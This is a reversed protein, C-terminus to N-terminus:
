DFLNTVQFEDSGAPLTVLLGDDALVWGDERIDAVGRTFIREVLKAPPPPTLHVMVLLGVGAENAIEAAETPTTHYSQIDETIKAIRPRGVEEAVASIQRVIHNAQAEHFLVDAGEAAAVLAPSPRADGSFVMSRGLYDFRYGYAPRVPDHNVVFATITLGEGEFVTAVPEGDDPPPVVQARMQSLDPPMLEAGHHATRYSSDLAYAENFGAVVREVGPPGYVDLPGSRGGTWTNLNFEGLAGIHDSHFHTLLVAGIPAPDLGLIGLTNWSGPGTDVVWFRNAAFVVICAKERTPHPMPSASGCVLARLADPELLRHQQETLRQEIIRTTVTDQVRESRLALLGAAALFVLLGVLAVVVKAPRM